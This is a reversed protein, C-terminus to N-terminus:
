INFNRTIKKNRILRQLVETTALAGYYLHNCLANDPINRLQVVFPAIDVIAANPVWRDLRKLEMESIEEQVESDM